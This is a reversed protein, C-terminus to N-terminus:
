QRTDRKRARVNPAPKLTSLCIRGESDINPHYIPTVFTVSSLSLSVFTLVFAQLMDNLVNRGHPPEFPYKIPLVVDLQFTGGEYPSDKPGLIAAGLKGTTEDSMWASVDPPPHQMSTLPLTM